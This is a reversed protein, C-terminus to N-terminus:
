FFPLAIAYPSIINSRHTNAHLNYTTVLRLNTILESLKHQSYSNKSEVYSITLWEHGVWLRGVDKGVCDVHSHMLEVFLTQRDAIHHSLIYIQSRAWLRM